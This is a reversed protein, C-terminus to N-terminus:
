FFNIRANKRYFKLKESAWNPFCATEQAAFWLNLQRRSIIKQSDEGFFQLIIAKLFYTFFKLIGSPNIECIINRNSEFIRSFDFNNYCM